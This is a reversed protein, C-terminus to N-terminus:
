MEPNLVEILPSLQLEYRKWLKISDTYIPKRVQAASATKVARETQHYKLCADDWDLGCFKLLESTQGKQDNILKEYQVNFIFDPLVNQWHNMLRQYQNYYEALEVQDYAYQHGMGLFYNKFISLCNDIPDRRCHIIKANPLILKIMGIHIFNGTMKDTISQIPASLKQMTALYNDGLQEFLSSNLQEIGQPYDAMKFSAALTQNLAHVEGAGYVNPHSALIQEVLSTGSRPMGLIFIPSSADSGVSKVRNFLDKNFVDIQKSIYGKWAEIEFTLHNRKIANAQSYFQFSKEFQQLDEFAKGLGFALHMKQQDDIGATNFMVEKENLDDDYHKYKKISTMQRFAEVYYPDIDLAKQFHIIAEDLRGLGKLAVALNCEIEAVGPAIKIAKNYHSIAKDLHGQGEYFNGLNIHAEAFDPKLEVAKLYHNLSENFQGIEELAIALNYETEAIAPKIEIAKQYHTIAEEFRGIQKFMNALNNHAEDFDPKLSLAKLILKEAKKYGGRQSELLGLLHLIVPEEPLSQMLQKYIVEAKQLNGTQHHQMAMNMAQQFTINQNASKKNM